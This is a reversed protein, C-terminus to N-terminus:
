TAPEDKEDKEDKENPMRHPGRGDGGRNLDIVASEARTYAIPTEHKLKYVAVRSVLPASPVSLEAVFYRDDDTSQTEIVIYRVLSMIM